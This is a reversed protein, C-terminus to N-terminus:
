LSDALKYEQSFRHKLVSMEGATNLKESPVSLYRKLMKLDCSTRGVWKSHLEAAASRSTSHSGASLLVIDPALPSWWWPM